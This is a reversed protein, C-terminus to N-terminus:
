PEGRKTMDALDFNPARSSCSRTVEQIPLPRVICLISLGPGHLELDQTGRGTHLRARGDVSRIKKWIVLVVAPKLAKRRVANQPTRCSIAIRLRMPLMCRMSTHTSQSGRCAGVARRKTRPGGEAAVAAAAGAPHVRNQRWRSVRTPYRLIIGYLM